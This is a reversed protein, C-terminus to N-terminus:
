EGSAKDGDTGWVMAVFREIFQLRTPPVRNLRWKMPWLRRNFALVGFLLLVGYGTLVIGVDLQEWFPPLNLFPEILVLGFLVLGFTVALAMRWRHHHFM